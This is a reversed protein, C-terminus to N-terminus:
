TNDFELSKLEFGKPLNDFTLNVNNNAFIVM